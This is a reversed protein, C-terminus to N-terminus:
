PDAYRKCEKNHDIDGVCYVQYVTDVAQGGPQAANGQCHETGHEEYSLLIHMGEKGDRGETDDDREPEKIYEPIFVM